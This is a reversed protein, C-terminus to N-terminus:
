AIGRKKITRQLDLCRNILGKLYKTNSKDCYYEIRKFIMDRWNDTESKIRGAGRETNMATDFVIWDFPYHLEDCGFRMWFKELYFNNKVYAKSDEPNMNKIIAVVEPFYKTTVGWITLGGPDDPDDAKWKEWDMAFNFAREYTDRM